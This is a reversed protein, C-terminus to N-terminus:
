GALGVRVCDRAAELFCSDPKQSNFQTSATAIHRIKFPFVAERGMGTEPRHIGDACPIGKESPKDIRQLLAAIQLLIDGKGARYRTKIDLMDARRRANRLCAHNFGKNMPIPQSRLDTVEAGILLTKDVDM